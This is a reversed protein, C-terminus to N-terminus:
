ENGDLSLEMLSKHRGALSSIIEACQEDATLHCDQFSLHQVSAWMRLGIALPVVHAFDSFSSKNFSVEM